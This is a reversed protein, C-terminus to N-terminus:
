KVAKILEKLYKSSDADKVALWYNATDKLFYYNDMGMGQVETVSMGDVKMRKMDTFVKSQPMKMDMDMFLKRAQHQDKSFSAWIFVSGKSCKYEVSYADKADIQKRHLYAIETLAAKGTREAVVSCGSLAPLDTEKQAAHAAYAFLMMILSIFAAKLAM